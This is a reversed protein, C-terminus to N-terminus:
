NINYDLAFDLWWQSNNELMEWKKILTKNNYKKALIEIPKKIKYILSHIRSISMYNIRKTAIDMADQLINIVSKIENDPYKQLEGALRHMGARLVDLESIKIRM